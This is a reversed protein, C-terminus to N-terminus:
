AAGNGARNDFADLRHQVHLSSIINDVSASTRDGIRASRGRRDHQYEVRVLAGDLVTQLGIGFMPAFGTDDVADYIKSGSRRRDGYPCPQDRVEVGLIGARGFISFKNGIWFSGVASVDIAKVDSRSKFFPADDITTRPPRPM